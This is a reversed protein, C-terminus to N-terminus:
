LLSKSRKCPGWPLAFPNFPFFTFIFECVCQRVRERIEQANALANALKQQLHLFLAALAGPVLTMLWIPRRFLSAGEPPTLGRKQPRGLPWHLFLSLFLWGNKKEYRVPGNGKIGQQGCTPMSQKGGTSSFFFLFLFFFCFCPGKPSFSPGRGEGCRWLPKDNPEPYLRPTKPKLSPSFSFLTSFLPLVLLFPFPALM